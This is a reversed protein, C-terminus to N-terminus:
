RHKSKPVVSNLLKDSFVTDHSKEIECLKPSIQVDPGSLKNCFVTNCPNEFNCHQSSTVASQAHSCTSISQGGESRANTDMLISSSNFALGCEASGTDHEGMLIASIVKDPDSYDLLPSDAPEDTKVANSDRDVPKVGPTAASSESTLGLSSSLLDGHRPDAEYQLGDATISVVRNLIRIEQPGTCGEGLRGRIKLEFSKALQEEYWDLHEDTALATFDDGHIVISIDRGPHHFVCPNSMGTIFGLGELVQTYTDEWLKGADRTGYVCRVQKAVTNPPLGLEKPVRM